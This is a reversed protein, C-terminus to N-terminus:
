LGCNVASRETGSSVLNQLRALSGQSLAFHRDPSFMSLIIISARRPWCIATLININRALSPINAEVCGKHKGSLVGPTQISLVYWGRIWDGRPLKPLKTQILM